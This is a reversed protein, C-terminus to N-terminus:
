VVRPMAVLQGNHPDLLHGLALPEPALILQWDDFFFTLGRGFALLLVAALAVLAFFSLDVTRARLDGM